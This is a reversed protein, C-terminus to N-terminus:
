QQTYYIEYPGTGAGINYDMVVLTYVGGVPAVFDVAALNSGWDYTQLFGNPRYIHILPELGVGGLDEMELHISNGQTVNFTYSDLDGKDITETVTGFNTLAGHENAGPARTYHLQYVGNHAGINYDMVVVTYTGTLPASFGVGAVEDDWDYDQLVGNPRYVNIQPNLALGNVDNIRLQIGDGQSATFTYTDLDGVGLAGIVSGGNPLAGNENSGPARVYNIRYPGTGAGSNYDKVHISYFGTVPAAFGVGAVTSAWDWVQLTGDPRYVNIQPDLGVGGLDVLRLQISEGQAAFITYQDVDYAPGIWGTVTHGGSKLIGIPPGAHSLQAGAEPTALFLIAISFIMAFFPKASHKFTM